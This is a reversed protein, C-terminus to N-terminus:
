AIPGLLSPKPPSVPERVEISGPLSAATTAEDFDLVFQRTGEAGLHLCAAGALYVEKGTATCGILVKRDPHAACDRKIDLWPRVYAHGFSEYVARRIRALREPSVENFRCGWYYDGRDTASWRVVVFRALHSTGGFKFHLLYHGNPDPPRTMKLRAGYESVDM